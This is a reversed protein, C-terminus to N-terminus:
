IPAPVPRIEYIPEDAVDIEAVSSLAFPGSWIEGISWRGFITGEGDYTGHYLVSHRGVYQKTLTVHGENDYSGSFTFAGIIDRGEGRVTGGSFVLFLPEMPQRGWGRQEWYGRWAGSPYM